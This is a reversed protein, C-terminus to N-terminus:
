QKHPQHHGSHSSVAHRAHDSLQADFFRQIAAILKPDEARYAIEAGKPLERYIFDIQRYSTALNALGPMDDGHIRRQGSFDGQKFRRCIDLLHQRILDIQQQDAADKVIVQQIGGAATKDFVHLTKELNFPMVHRGREAVEDLRKTDAPAQIQAAHVTLSLTMAIATKSLMSM